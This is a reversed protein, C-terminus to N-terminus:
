FLTSLSLSTCLTARQRTCSRVKYKTIPAGGDDQPTSFQVSLTSDNHARVHVTSPPDPMTCPTESEPSTVAGSASYGMANYSHVLVRHPRGKELNPIVLFCPDPSCDGSSVEVEQWGLPTSPSGFSADTDWWEVQSSLRTLIGALCSRFMFKAM